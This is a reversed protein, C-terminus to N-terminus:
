KWAFTKMQCWKLQWLGLSAREGGVCVYFNMKHSRKNDYFNTFISNMNGHEFLTRKVFLFCFTFFVCKRSRAHTHCIYEKSNPISPKLVHACMTNNHWEQFQNVILSFKILPHMNKMADIRQPSEVLVHTRNNNTSHQAQFPAQIYPVYVVSADRKPHM